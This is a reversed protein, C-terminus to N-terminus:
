YGEPTFKKRNEKAKIREKIRDIILHGEREEMKRPLPHQGENHLATSLREMREVVGKDPHNKSMRAKRRKYEANDLFEKSAEEFNGENIMDITDPSGSLGGRFYSSIISDQTEPNMSKFNKIERNVRSIKKNLDKKFLKKIEEDSYIKNPEVDPGYHGIGVTYHKEGKLKYPKYKVAEEKKIREMLRNLREEKSYVNKNDSM